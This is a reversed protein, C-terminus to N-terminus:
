PLVKVFGAANITQDSMQTLLAIDLAVINMLQFTFLHGLIKPPLLESPTINGSCERLMAPLIGAKMHPYQVFGLNLVRRSSICARFKYPKRHGFERDKSKM